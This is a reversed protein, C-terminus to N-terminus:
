LWVGQVGTFVAILFAFLCIGCFLLIPDLSSDSKESAATFTSLPTFLHIARPV